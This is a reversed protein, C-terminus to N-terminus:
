NQTLGGGGFENTTEFSLRVRETSLVGLRIRVESPDNFVRTRPDYTMQLERNGRWELRVRPGGWPASPAEGGDHDGVFANGSESGLENGAGLVAVQTSSGTTAGCDRQFVVAELKGDPSALREVEDNACMGGLCGSSLLALVLVLLQSPRSAKDYRLALKM